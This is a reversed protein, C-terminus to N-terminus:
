LCDKVHVPFVIIFSRVVKRSKDQTLVYASMTTNFKLQFLEVTADAFFAAFFRPSFTM